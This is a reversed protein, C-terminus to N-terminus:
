NSLKRCSLEKYEGSPTLSRTSMGTIELLLKCGSTSASSVFALFNVDGVSSGLILGESEVCL